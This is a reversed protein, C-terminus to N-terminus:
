LGSTPCTYLSGLNNGCVAVSAFVMSLYKGFSYPDGPVTGLGLIIPLANPDFCFQWGCDIEPIRVNIQLLGAVMGQAQGAYTVEGRAGEWFMVSVPLVPKASGDAAVQGDTLAPQM